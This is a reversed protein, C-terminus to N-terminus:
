IVPLDPPLLRSGIVDKHMVPPQWVATPRGRRKPLGSTAVEWHSHNTTKGQLRREKGKANVESAERFLESEHQADPCVFRHLKIM